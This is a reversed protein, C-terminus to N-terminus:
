GSFRIICDGWGWNWDGKMEGKRQRKERGKQRYGKGYGERNREGFGAIILRGCVGVAFANQRM